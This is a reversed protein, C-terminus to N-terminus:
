RIAILKRTMPSAVRSGIATSSTAIIAVENGANRGVISRSPACNLYARGPPELPPARPASRGMEIPQAGFGTVIGAATRGRQSQHGNMLASLLGLGSHMQISDTQSGRSATRSAARQDPKPKRPVDRKAQSFGLNQPNYFSPNGQIRENSDLSILPNCWIKLSFNKWPAKTTAFAGQFCRVGPNPM